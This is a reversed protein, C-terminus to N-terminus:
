TTQTRPPKGGAPGADPLPQIRLNNHVDRVGQDHLEECIRDDARRYGRPGIGSFPGAMRQHHSGWGHDTESAARDAAVSRLTEWHNMARHREERHHDFDLRNPETVNLDFKGRSSQREAM